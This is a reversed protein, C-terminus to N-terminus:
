RYHQPIPVGPLNHLAQHHNIKKILDEIEISPWVIGKGDCSKCTVPKQVGGGEYLCKPVTCSGECVPCKSAQM